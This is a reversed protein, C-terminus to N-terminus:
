LSAASSPGASRLFRRYEAAPLGFRLSNEMAEIYPESAAYFAKYGECLWNLRGSPTDTLRDKPCGGYCLALHDCRLCEDPLTERKAEGFTTQASSDVMMALAKDHVNGLRHAPTVFHDCSYLDGNHELALGRGCTEAHVCLTAPHGLAQGLRQDFHQVFVRGVDSKRWLHFVSNLFRGWAAGSVSRASAGGAQDPEVLPIFQLFPSGLSRLFRYVTEPNQSNDANVVTLLNFDVRHRRLIEIGRMVSAFTGQGQTDLRHLDHLVQPGDISVGVLFGHERFFRAFSEDILVGNTQFTNQVSVGAPALRRQLAVAREFFAIGMLSPEGGQWAFQVTEQGEPRAEILSRVLTELTADSMRFDAARQQPYLATKDLYFCYDCRLNCQAGIPKVM